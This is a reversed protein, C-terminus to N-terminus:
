AAAEITGAIHDTVPEGALLLSRVSRSPILRALIFRGFLPVDHVLYRRWLRRPDQILRHLWEMGARQMWRPARPVRGALFNFTGGVGVCVPVGLERRHQGIWLDQRPAGFAVFLMDPQARRILRIMRRNDADSFPGIPPSYIGAIRLGPHRRVLEAAADDAVGPEAGLLFLSYGRRAALHASREVLEVGTVREPVADGSLRSAWVVGMGDPIALDAMGLVARFALDSRAQRVFDLNVTVIQHVGGGDIWGEIRELVSALSVRHILVDLLRSAAAETM